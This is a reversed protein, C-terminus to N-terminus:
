QEPDGCLQTITKQLQETWARAHPMLAVVEGGPQTKVFEIAQDPSMAVFMTIFGDISYIPANDNLWDALKITQDAAIEPPIRRACNDILTALAQDAYTVPRQEIIAHSGAQSPDPAGQAGTQISQNQGPLYTPGNQHTQGQVIAGPAHPTQALTQAGNTSAGRFLDAIPKFLEQLAVRLMEPGQGSKILEKAVEAWQASDSTMAKDGLITRTLSTSIQEMIEPNKTILSLAAVEPDLPTGPSAQAPQGGNVGRLKDIMAVISVVEQLGEKMTPPPTLPVEGNANIIPPQFLYPVQPGSNVAQGPTQPDNPLNITPPAAITITKAKIIGFKSRGTQESIRHGVVQLRFVGGGYNDQVDHLFASTYPIEGRYIVGGKKFLGHSTNTTPKMIQFIRLTHGEDGAGADFFDLLDNSVGDVLEPDPDDDFAELGEAEPDDDTNTDDVTLPESYIRRTVTIKRGHPPAEAEEPTIEIEEPDVLPQKRPRGRKRPGDPIKTRPM